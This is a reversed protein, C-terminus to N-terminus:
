AMPTRLMATARYMRGPVIERVRHVCRCRDLMAMAAEMECGLSHAGSEDGHHIALGVDPEGYLSKDQLVVLYLTVPVIGHV